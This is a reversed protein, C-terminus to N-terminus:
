QLEKSYAKLTEKEKTSLSNFGRNNIKELLRDVEKQMEARRANYRQDITLNPKPKDFVNRNTLLVHPKRALIYIFVLCPVTVALIPLYNNEIVSPVMAIAVLMGALAGGLHADHGIDDFRSRLGFISYLVFLLGYIWAPISFPFPFIGIAMGPFIAIAAFIVACVAGSSGVSRYNSHHRHLFLSFLNGAILGSFYILLYQLPGLYIEVAESFAYLSFMNFLLHIWGTHLFGSSLMRYYQKEVLIKEISFIYKEYFARNRFGQWSFLVTTIILFFSLIGM